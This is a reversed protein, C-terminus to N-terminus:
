ARGSTPSKTKVCDDSKSLADQPKGCELKHGNRWHKIQCPKSCYRAKHCKSCKRLKSEEHKGKCGHCQKMSKRDHCENAPKAKPQTNALEREIAQKAQRRRREDHMTKEMLAIEDYKREDPRM